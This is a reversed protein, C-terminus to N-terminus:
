VQFQSLFEFAIRFPYFLLLHPVKGLILHNFTPAALVQKGILTVDRELIVLGTEIDEFKNELAKLSTTDEKPEVIVISETTESVDPEEVVDEVISMDRILMYGFLIGGLVILSIIVIGVYKLIKKLSKKEVPGTEIVTPRKSDSVKPSSKTPIVPPKKPTVAGGGSLEPTGKEPLKVEEPKTSAKKPFEPVKPKPIPPPPPVPKLPPPPPAPKVPVPPKVPPTPTISNEQPPKKNGIDTKDQTIEAM